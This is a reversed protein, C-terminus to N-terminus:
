LRGKWGDNFGLVYDRDCSECLTPIKDSPHKKRKWREERGAMVGLQYYSWDGWIDMKLPKTRM